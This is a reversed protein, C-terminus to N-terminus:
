SAPPEYHRQGHPAEPQNLEQLMKGRARHLLVRVGVQTKRMIRAIEDISFDEAFRLWMATYHAPSLTNRAVEWIADVNEAEELRDHDGAHGSAAAAEFCRTLKAQRRQQSRLHDTAIRLAITFLWTSFRYKADFRDLNQYARTLSEQAIDEADMRNRGTTRPLILQVLRPYYRRALESYSDQCGRRARAVLENADLTGLPSQDAAAAVSGDVPRTTNPPVM